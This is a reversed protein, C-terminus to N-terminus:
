IGYAIIEEGFQEYTRKLMWDTLGLDIPEDGAPGLWKGTDIAGAIKSLLGRYTARGAELMGQDAAFTGVCFPAYSEVALWYFSTPLGTLKQVMDCYAAAQAHYGFNFISKVFEMPEVSKTTKVDFVVAQGDILTTTFFDPKGTIRIDPRDEFDAYLRKEVTAGLLLRSLSAKENLAARIGHLKDWTPQDILGRGGLRIEILEKRTKFDPLTQRITAILNPKRKDKPVSIREEEMFTLIEEVTEPTFGVGLEELCAWESFFKEPELTIGHVQTGFLMAASEEQQGGDIVYYKFHELSKNAWFLSSVRFLHGEAPKTVEDPGEVVTAIRPLWKAIDM